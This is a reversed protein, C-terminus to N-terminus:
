LPSIRLIAYGVISHNFSKAFILYHPNKDKEIQGGLCFTFAFYIGVESLLKQTVSECHELEGDVQAMAWASLIGINM